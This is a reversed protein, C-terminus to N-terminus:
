VFGEKRGGERGGEGVRVNVFSANIYDSGEINDVMELVVRSDDVIFSIFFFKLVRIKYYFFLCAYACTANCHVLVHIHIKNRERIRLINFQKIFIGM